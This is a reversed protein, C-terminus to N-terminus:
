THDARWTTVWSTQVGMLDRVMCGVRYGRDLEGSYSTCIAYTCMVVKAIGAGLCSHAWQSSVKLWSGWHVHTILSSEWCHSPSGPCGWAVSLGVWRSVVQLWQSEVTKPDLLKWGLSSTKKGAEGQFIPVTRRKSVERSLRADVSM